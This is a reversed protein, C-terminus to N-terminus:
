DEAEEDQPLHAREHGPVFAEFQPLDDEVEVWSAKSGVMMHFSPRARPDGEITGAPIVVAPRGEVVTPVASGCQGCFGRFNGPSSEYRRVLSKGAVYSFHEPRVRAFVGFSTGTQKRCMSCHCINMLAVERAEYRVGGCLCAGRIM